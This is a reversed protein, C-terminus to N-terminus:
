KRSTRASIGARSMSTCGGRATERSSMRYGCAYYVSREITQLRPELARPPFVHSSHQQRDHGDDHTDHATDHEGFPQCWDLGLRFGSETERGYGAFFASLVDGTGVLHDGVPRFGESRQGSVFLPGPARYFADEGLVRVPDEDNLAPFQRRQRPRLVRWNRIERGAEGEGDILGRKPVGRLTWHGGQGSFTPRVYRAAIGLNERAGTPLTFLANVSAPFM